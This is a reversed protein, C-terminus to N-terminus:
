GHTEGRTRMMNIFAMAFLLLLVGTAAYLSFPLYVMRLFSLFQSDSFPLAASVIFVISLVSLWIMGRKRRLEGSVLETILLLSLSIRIFAGSLWQYISLFDVHQIYRGLKVLRWEEYAPYRLEAAEFPGFEAIAGSVPGLILIILFLGLLCLSWYKVKSKLQHQVLILIFLEALGGGVYVCGELVPGLGNELIPTLLTYDKRPLNSSMVFDGFLVVFPLLMGAVVAIARLGGWAAFCCLLVLSIALIVDPTRPLYSGHTWNVTEKVTVMGILFLYGIFFIRLSGSVVRGFRQKAWTLIPQQNTHKMVYRLVAIWILYPIVAALVSIWADRKASILLPPLVIVHNMLGVGLMVICYM